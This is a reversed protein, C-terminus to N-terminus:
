AVRQKRIEARLKDAQPIGNTEEYRQLERLAGDWDSVSRLILREALQRRAFCEEKHERSWTCGPHMPVCPSHGCM